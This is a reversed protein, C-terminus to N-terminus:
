ESLLKEKDLMNLSDALKVLEIQLMSINTATCIFDPIIGLACFTAVAEPPLGMQSVILAYCALGGGPVPPAAIALIVTLVTLTLLWPLSIKTGFFGSIYLTLCYFLIMSGPMFITQGLPVGVNVIRKDIGLKKECVEMNDTFSASSSATAIAIIYTSSMKRILLKPSLKFRFCLFAGDLILIVVSALILTLFLKYSGLLFRVGNGLMLQFLSLFVFVSIFKSVTEMILQVIYNTQEVFKAAVTTKDSLLLMAIGVIIAIFIIQLTNSSLFPSILNDPVIDLIMAYLDSFAFTSNELPHLEYFPLQTLLTVGACILMMILFRQIMRKGINSLSTVDGISYIGWMVTLLILPSSIFSILGIFTDYIPGILQETIFDRIDRPLLYCIFACIIASLISLFLQFLTRSKQKRKFSYTLANQGDRYNWQFSLGQGYLLSQLIESYEEESDFPNFSPSSIQVKIRYRSNFIDEVLVLPCNEGFHSQFKLLIEELTLSIRISEKKDAKGSLATQQVRDIIDSIDSNSLSFKTKTRM